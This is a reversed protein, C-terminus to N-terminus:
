RGRGPGDTLCAIAGFRGCPRTSRDSFFPSGPGTPLPAVTVHGPLVGAEALVLRNASWLDFRWKGAGDPGIVATQAGFAARAEDAVEDGVQYRSAPIAPGMAAVIDRPQAGCATMVDIAAAVVGAVTGRWGAHVCALVGHQPDLLVIPVCDAVMVVLGVGPDTTVMADADAIADELAFAGRGRDNWTIAIVARGHAQNCFVLDGLTLGVAAAARRRNEIVHSPEDGVHLGLNLSGYAGQSVGGDRTTVVADVSAADFPAWALVRLGDRDEFRYAETGPMAM